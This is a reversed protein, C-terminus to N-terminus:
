PCSSSPTPTTTGNKMAVQARCTALVEIDRSQETGTQSVVCLRFSVTQGGSLLGSPEFVVSPVSTGGSNATLTLSSPLAPTQRLVTTTTVGAGPTCIPQSSSSAPCEAILMAQTWSSACSAGDTSPCVTVQADQKVAESRAYTLMGILDNAQTTANDNNIISVFSPVAMAFLIGAVVMTVILEILTFGRNGEM